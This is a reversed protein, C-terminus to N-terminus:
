VDVFVSVDSVIAFPVYISNERERERLLASEKSAVCARLFLPCLYYYVTGPRRLVVAERAFKM